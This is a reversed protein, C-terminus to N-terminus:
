WCAAPPSKACLHCLGKLVVKALAPLVPWAGTDAPKSKPDLDCSPTTILPIQHPGPRATAVAPGKAKLFLNTGLPHPQLCLYM